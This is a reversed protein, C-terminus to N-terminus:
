PPAPGVPAGRHRVLHPHPDFAQRLDDGAGQRGAPPRSRRRGQGARRAGAQAAACRRDPRALHRQRPRVPRSFAEARIEIARENLRGRRGGCARPRAMPVERWRRQRRAPSSAKQAEMAAATRDLMTVAERAEDRSVILPPLLRVVNDGAAVTILGPRPGRHRFRWQAGQAKLGLLLGQGRVEEFVGPHSAVLGGLQQQLYNAVDNVHELFGPELLMEVAEGAVAMAWRIAAMPRAM